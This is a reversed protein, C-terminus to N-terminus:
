STGNDDCENSQHIAGAKLRQLEEILRTLVPILNRFYWAQFAICLSLVCVCGSLILDSM